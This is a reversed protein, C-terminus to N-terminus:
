SVARVRMSNRLSYLHKYALATDEIITRQKSHQQSITELDIKRLVRSTLSKPADIFRRVRLEDEMIRFYSKPFVLPDLIDVIQSHSDIMQDEHQM